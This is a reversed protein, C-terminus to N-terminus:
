ADLYKQRLSLLIELEEKWFGIESLAKADTLFMTQRMKEFQADTFYSNRYGDEGHEAYVSTEFENYIILFDALTYISSNFFKSSFNDLPDLEEIQDNKSLNIAILDGDRCGGIVIYKEFGSKNNSDPWTDMLRNIGHVVDDTDNTFYLFPSPCNPLGAINLFEKTTPLLNFRSLRASDIPSLFCGETNIWTNKFDTPSM